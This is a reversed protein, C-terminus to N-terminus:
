ARDPDLDYPRTPRQKPLLPLPPFPKTGSVLGKDNGGTEMNDKNPDSTPRRDSSHCQNEWPPSQQELPLIRVERIPETGHTPPEHTSSPDAVQANSVVRAMIFSGGPRVPPMKSIDAGNSRGTFLQELRCVVLGKREKDTM